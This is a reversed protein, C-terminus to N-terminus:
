NSRATSSDCAAWTATPWPDPGLTVIGDPHKIAVGWRRSTHGGPLPDASTEDVHYRGPGLGEVVRKIGEPSDATGIPDGNPHNVRLTRPM